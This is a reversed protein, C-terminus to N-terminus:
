KASHNIFLFILFVLNHLAHFCISWRLGMVIRIYGLMLGGFIQPLVLIISLLPIYHEMEYNGIHVMGFSIGSLYFYFKFNKSYFKLLKTKIKKNQLLKSYIINCSVLVILCLIILLYGRVQFLFILILGINIPVFINNWKFSTLYSRQILEELIPAIIVISM